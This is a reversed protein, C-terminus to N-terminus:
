CREPVPHKLLRSCEDTLHNGGCMPCAEGLEVCVVATTFHLESKERRADEPKNKMTTAQDSSIPREIASMSQEVELRLNETNRVDDFLEVQDQLFLLFAPLDAVLRGDELTLKDWDILGTFNSRSFKDWFRGDWTPSVLDLRRLSHCLSEGM